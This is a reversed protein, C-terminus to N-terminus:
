PAHHLLANATRSILQGEVSASFSSECSRMAMFASEVPDGLITNLMTRGTSNDRVHYKGDPTLNVDSGQKLITTTAKQM